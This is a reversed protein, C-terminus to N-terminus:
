REIPLIFWCTCDTVKDSSSSIKRLVPGLADKAVFKCIRGM